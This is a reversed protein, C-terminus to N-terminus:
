LLAYYLVTSHAVTRVKREPTKTLVQRDDVGGAVVVKTSNDAASYAVATEIVNAKEKGNIEGMVSRSSKPSLSPDVVVEAATVAKSGSHADALDVSSSFSTSFFSLIDPLTTSASAESTTPSSPAPLATGSQTSICHFNLYDVCSCNTDAAASDSDSECESESFFSARRFTVTRNEHLATMVKRESAVPSSKTAVQQEDVEGAVVIRTSKDVVMHIQNEKDANAQDVQGTVFSEGFALVMASRDLETKKAQIHELVAKMCSPTCIAELAKVRPYIAGVAACQRIESTKDPHV